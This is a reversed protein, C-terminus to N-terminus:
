KRQFKKYASLDIKRGIMDIIKQARDVNRPTLFSVGDACRVVDDEDVYFRGTETICYPEDNELITVARLGYEDATGIEIEITGDVPKYVNNLDVM